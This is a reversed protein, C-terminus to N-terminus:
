SFMRSSEVTVGQPFFPRDCLELIPNTLWASLWSKSLVNTKAAEKATLFSLIHHIIDEPLEPTGELAKSVEM